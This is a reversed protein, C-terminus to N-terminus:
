ERGGAGGGDGDDDEDDRGGGVAVGFMARVAADDDEDWDDHGGRGGGSPEEPLEVIQVEAAVVEALHLDEIFSVAKELESRVIREASGAIALAIVARQWTDQGGVEAVSANFRNRVRRKVSQVVGRKSKLSQSDHVHLEVLAAGLIM